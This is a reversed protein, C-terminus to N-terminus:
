HKVQQLPHQELSVRESDPESTVVFVEELKVFDVSPTVIITKFLTGAQERVDSVVGIRIDAPFTSSYTSTLVVDGTKVDLTKAVNKLIVNRGDWAVIGDVRSREIKASARFDVNVLLNVVAYHESVSVVIGVLGGDGIVPMLPEVGDVRGIDITLTNRLLTLNKGIVQGAVLDFPVQQKLALLQRLRINELREERLRNAQDALEVNTRRLLQNESELSFYNPIFILREQLLGYAVTALTRMHKVQPNDNLALLILSATILAVLVAYQKFQYLIDYLRQLM